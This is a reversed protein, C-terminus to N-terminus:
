GDGDLAPAYHHVAADLAAQARALQEPRVLLLEPSDVPDLHPWGGTMCTVTAFGAWSSWEPWRSSSIVQIQRVESWPCSRVIRTGRRFHVARDDCTVSVRGPRLRWLLTRVAAQLLAALVAFAAALAAEQPGRALAVVGGLMVLGIIVAGAYFPRWVERLASVVLVEEVGTTM